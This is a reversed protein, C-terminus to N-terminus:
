FDREKKVKDLLNVLASKESNEALILAEKDFLHALESVRRSRAKKDRERRRCCLSPMLIYIVVCL